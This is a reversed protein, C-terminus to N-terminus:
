EREARRSRFAATKTRNQCAICCFRRSANKTADVFVRDCNVAECVGFRHAAGAGIMRALGEACISTWMALVAADAPHHHLCWIGNEKALHPTAPHRALLVNLRHAAEDVNGKGLAVFVDRLAQALASFGPVDRRKLAALSPPDVSLADRIAAMADLVEIASGRAFGETLGNVLAVSALVGADIYSDLEVKCTAGRNIRGDSDVADIGTVFLHHFCSRM